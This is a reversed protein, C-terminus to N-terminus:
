GEKNVILHVVYDNGDSGELTWDSFFEGSGEAYGYDAADGDEDFLTAQGWSTNTIEEDFYGVGCCYVEFEYGNFFTTSYIFASEILAEEYSTPEDDLYHQILKAEEPKIIISSHYTAM